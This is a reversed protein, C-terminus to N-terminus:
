KNAFFIDIDEYIGKLLEDKTIARYFDADPELVRDYENSEEVTKYMLHYKNDGREIFVDENVALDYYKDQHTAFEKSSVITM